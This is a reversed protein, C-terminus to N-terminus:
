PGLVEHVSEPPSPLHRENYSVIDIIVKRPWFTVEELM